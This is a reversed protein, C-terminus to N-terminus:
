SESMIFSCVNISKDVPEVETDTVNEEEEEPVEIKLNDNHKCLEILKEDDTIIRKCYSKNPGIIKHRKFAKELSTFFVMRTRQEETRFEIDEEVLYVVVYVDTLKDMEPGNEYEKVLHYEPEADFLEGSM